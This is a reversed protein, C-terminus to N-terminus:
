GKLRYIFFNVIKKVLGYPVKVKVRAWKKLLALVWILRIGGRTVNDKTVLFFGVSTTKSGCVAGLNSGCLLYGSKLIEMIGRCTEGNSGEGTQYNSGLIYIVDSIM